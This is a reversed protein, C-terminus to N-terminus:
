LKKTERHLLFPMSIFLYELLIKLYKTVYGYFHLIGVAVFRGYDTGIVVITCSTTITTIIIISGVIIQNPHTGITFIPAIIGVTVMM